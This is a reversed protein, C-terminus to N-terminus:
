GSLMADSMSGNINAEVSISHGWFLDGDNYYAEFDGDKFIVINELVLKSQFEDMTISSEEEELWAENKLKLLDNSIKAKLKLDWKTQDEWIKLALTELDEIQNLDTSLFLEIEVDNWFANTEFWGSGRDLVFIGFTKSKFLVPKKREELKDNLRDHKYNSQVISSLKIRNQGNKSIKEGSIKVITLADLGKVTYDMSPVKKYVTVEGHITEEDNIVYNCFNFSMSCVNKSSSLGVGNEDIIGIFIDKKYPKILSKIKSFIGAM